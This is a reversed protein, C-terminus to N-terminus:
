KYLLHSCDCQHYKPKLILYIKKCCPTALEVGLGGTNFVSNDKEQVPQCGLSSFETQGLIKGMPSFSILKEREGLGHTCLWCLSDWGFNLNSMGIGNIIRNVM